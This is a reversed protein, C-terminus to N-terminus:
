IRGDYDTKDYVLQFIFLDEAIGLFHRGDVGRSLRLHGSRLHCSTWGSLEWLPHSTELYTRKNSSRIITDISFPPFIEPGPRSSNLTDGSSASIM